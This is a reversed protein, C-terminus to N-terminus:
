SNTYYLLICGILSKIEYDCTAQDAVHYSMTIVSRQSLQMM